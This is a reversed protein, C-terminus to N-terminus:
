VSESLSDDAVPFSLLGKQVISICAIRQALTNVVLHVMLILRHSLGPALDM